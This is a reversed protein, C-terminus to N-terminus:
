LGQGFGHVAVSRCVERIQAPPLETWEIERNQVGYGPYETASMKDERDGDKQNEVLVGELAKQNGDSELRKELAIKEISM